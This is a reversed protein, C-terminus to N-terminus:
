WGNGVNTPLKKKKSPMPPRALDINVEPGKRSKYAEVKSNHTNTAGARGLVLDFPISQRSDSMQGNSAPPPQNFGKESGRVSGNASRESPQRESPQRESPQRESPQRGNISDAKNSAGSEKRTIRQPQEDYYIIPQDNGQRSGRDSGKVSDKQSYKDM